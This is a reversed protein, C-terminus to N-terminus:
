NLNRSGFKAYYLKKPDDKDEQYIYFGVAIYSTDVALVIAGQGHYDIPLLAQANRVGDKVAEMSEIQKPGWEFPVEKRTMRQLEHARLAYNPIYARLVGTIGLFARVDRLNECVEWHMIAGIKDDSPKRGDYSCTHGVVEIEAACVLSKKGSFTGGCYKMRQLIRNVNQVHEWVFRRIGSNEAITEYTGDASQYRSAPGRVPVDDIYPITYEPIEPKLIETVDDHFIPVSNTWGMPLTVLRM